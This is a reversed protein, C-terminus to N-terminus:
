NFTGMSSEATAPWHNNWRWKAHLAGKFKNTAKSFELRPLYNTGGPPAGHCFGSYEVDAAGDGDWDGQEAEISLTPTLAKGGCTADATIKSVCYVKKLTIVMSGGTALEPIHISIPATSLAEFTPGQATYLKVKIDTVDAGTTNSITFDWFDPPPPPAALAFQTAFGGTLVVFALAWV